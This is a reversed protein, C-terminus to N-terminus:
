MALVECISLKVSVSFVRVMIPYSKGLLRLDTVKEFSGHVLM